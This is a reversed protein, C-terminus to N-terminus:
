GLRASTAVKTACCSGVRVVKEVVVMKEMSRLDSEDFRGARGIRWRVCVCVCIDRANNHFARCWRIM